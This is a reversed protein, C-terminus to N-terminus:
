IPPPPLNQPLNLTINMMLSVQDSEYLKASDLGRTKMYQYSRIYLEWILFWLENDPNIQEVNLKLVNKAELYDIVKGHSKYTKAREL